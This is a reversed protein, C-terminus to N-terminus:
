KSQEQHKCIFALASEIAEARTQNLYTPPHTQYDQTGTGEVTGKQLDESLIQLIKIAKDDLPKVRM